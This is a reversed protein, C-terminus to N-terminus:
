QGNKKNVDKANNLIEYSKKACESVISIAETIQSPKAITNSEGVRWKNFNDIIEIAELITM